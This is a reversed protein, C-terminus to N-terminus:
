NGIEIGKSVDRIGFYYMLSNFDRLIGEHEISSSTPIIKGCRSCNEANTPL